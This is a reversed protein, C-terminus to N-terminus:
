IKEHCLIITFGLVTYKKLIIHVAVGAHTCCTVSSPVTLCIRIVAGWIRTQITASACYVTMLLRRLNPMIKTTVTFTPGPQHIYMDTYELACHCCTHSQFLHIHRKGKGSHLASDHLCSCWFSM